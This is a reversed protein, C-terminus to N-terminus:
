DTSFHMLYPIKLIEYSSLPISRFINKPKALGLWYEWLTLFYIDLQNQTIIEPWFGCVKM